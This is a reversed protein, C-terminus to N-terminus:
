PLEIRLSEFTWDAFTVTADSVVTDYLEGIVPLRVLETWASISSNIDTMTLSSSWESSEILQASYTSRVGRADFQVTDPNNFLLVSVSAVEPLDVMSTLVLEDKQYDVSIDVLSQAATWTALWWVSASLLSSNTLVTYVVVSWLFWITGAILVRQHTSFKALRNKLWHKVWM